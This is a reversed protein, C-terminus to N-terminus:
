ANLKERFQRIHLTHDREHWLARRLMKRPSWMEGAKVEIRAVGELQPLVELLRARAMELRARWHGPEQDLLPALNLRDLYWWEARGTHNLIGGISWEGEVPRNLTDISLGDFSALLDARQWELRQVALRIEDATLAPVDAAFFANVIYDPDDPTPWERGVEDVFVEVLSEGVPQTNAYAARWALYDYITQPASALATDRDDASTYCGLLVPVHAVWRGEMEELCIAYRM